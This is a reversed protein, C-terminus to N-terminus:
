IETLGSCWVFMRFTFFLLLSMRTKVNSNIFGVIHKILLKNYWCFPKWCIQFSNVFKDEYALSSIIM